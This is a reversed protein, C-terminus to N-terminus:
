RNLQINILCHTAAHCRCKSARIYDGRLNIEMDYKKSM